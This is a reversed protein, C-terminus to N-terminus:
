RGVARALAETLADSNLAPPAQSGQTLDARPATSTQTTARQQSWLAAQKRMTEEDPATLILDTNETIGSEAAIRYRLADLTAKSAVEQADQAAKQARELESMNAAKIKDLEARFEAAQREATKRAEREAKLASKGADGLDDEAPEGQKSSAEPDTPKGALAAAAAELANSGTPAATTDSM